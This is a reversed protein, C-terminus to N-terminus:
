LSMYYIQLLNIMDLQLLANQCLQLVGEDVLELSGKLILSEDIHQEFETTPALQEVAKAFIASEAVIHRHEVNAFDQQSEAVHM